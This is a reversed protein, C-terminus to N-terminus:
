KDSRFADPCGLINFDKDIKVGGDQCLPWYKGDVIEVDGDGWSNYCVGQLDPGGLLFKGKHLIIRHITYVDTHMGNYDASGWCMKVYDGVCVEKGNVDLIDTRM